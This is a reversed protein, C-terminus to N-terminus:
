CLLGEFGLVFVLVLLVGGGGGEWGEGRRASLGIFARRRKWNLRSISFVQFDTIM